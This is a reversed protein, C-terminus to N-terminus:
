VVKVGLNKICAALKCHVMVRGERLSVKERFQLQQGGVQAIAPAIFKICRDRQNYQYQDM